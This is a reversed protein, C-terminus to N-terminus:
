IRLARRGRRESVWEGEVWNERCGMKKEKGGCV